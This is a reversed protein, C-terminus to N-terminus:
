ALREFLEVHRPGDSLGALAASAAPELRAGHAADYVEMLTVRGKRPDPRHWVEVAVGQQLHVARVAALAQDASEAAVHWYVYHRM